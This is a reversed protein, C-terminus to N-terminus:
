ASATPSMTSRVLVSIAGQVSISALSLRKARTLTSRVMLSAMSAANALSQLKVRPQLPIGGPRKRLSCHTEAKIAASAAGVSPHVKQLLPKLRSAKTENGTAGSQM